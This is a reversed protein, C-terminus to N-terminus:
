PGVVTLGYKELINCSEYFASEGESWSSFQNNNHKVMNLFKRGLQIKDIDLQPINKFSCLQNIVTILKENENILNNNNAHMRLGIEFTAMLEFVNNSIDPDEIEGYFSKCKNYFLRLSPGAKLLLEFDLDDKQPASGSTIIGENYVVLYGIPGNVLNIFNIYDGHRIAAFENKFEQIKKQSKLVKLMYGVTVAIILKEM